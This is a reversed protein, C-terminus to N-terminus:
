EYFSFCVEAHELAARPYLRPWKRYGRKCSYDSSVAENPGFDGLLRVQEAIRGQKDYRTQTRHENRYSFERGGGGYTTERIQQETQRGQADYAYKKFNVEANGLVEREWWLVRGARDYRYREAVTVTTGRTTVRSVLLSAADYTEVIEEDKRGDADTDVETRILRDKDDYFLKSVKWQTALNWTAVWHLRGHSDYINREASVIREPSAPPRRGDEEIMETLRFQDDWALRVIGLFRGDALSEVELVPLGVKNYEIVRRRHEQEVTGDNDFDLEVRVVMGFKDYVFISAYEREAVLTGCARMKPTRKVVRTVLGDSAYTRSEITDIIHDSGLDELRRILQGSANHILKVTLAPRQEGDVRHTRRCAEVPDPLEYQTNNVLHAWAEHHRPVHRAVAAVGKARSPLAALGLAQADTTLGAPPALPTDPVVDVGVDTAAPVPEPAAPSVVEPSPSYGTCGLLSTTLVGVGVRMVM